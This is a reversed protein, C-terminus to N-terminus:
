YLKLLLKGFGFLIRGFEDFGGEESMTLGFSLSVFVVL